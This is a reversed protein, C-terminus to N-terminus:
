IEVRKLTGYMVRRVNRVWRRRRWEGTGGRWGEDGEMIDYVWREEEVEVEVGEIYREEVWAKSGLDLTWKKDKWEWGQPCRVDEFFRTGKPKEGASRSSSLKEYPSPSFIWAEWEGTQDRRQLEFIEVERTEPTADLMVDAKAFNEFRRRMVKSRPKLHKHHLTRIHTHSSPHSLIIGVWGSVLFVLRWPVHRATLFLLISTTFMLLFLTSSVYEDSFDTPPVVAAIVDDHATSFDDMSNQLDRLNRFFDKSLESVAKVEPPPATAPGHAPYPDTPLNTPPPPHRQIYSPVMLFLVAAIIPLAALLYPDLGLYTLSHVPMSFLFVYVRFFVSGHSVIYTNAEEMSIDAVSSASLHIRSWDQTKYKTVDHLYTTQLYRQNFRRFNKSMLTVSFSPRNKDKRKDETVAYHEVMDPPLIQSVIKAFMKDQLGSALGRIGTAGDAVSSSPEKTPDETSFVIAPTSARRRTQSSFSPNTSIAPRLRYKDQRQEEAEDKEPLFADITFEDM